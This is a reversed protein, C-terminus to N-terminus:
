LLLLWECVSSTLQLYACTVICGFYVQSGKGKKTIGIAKLQAEDLGKLNVMDDGNKYGEKHFVETYESLDLAELWEKVSDQILYVRNYKNRPLRQPLMIIHM